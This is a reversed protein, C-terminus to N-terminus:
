KGLILNVDEPEITQNGRHKAVAGVSEIISSALEISYEMLMEKAKDEMLIPQRGKQEPRGSIDDLIKQVRLLDTMKEGSRIQTPPISTTSM